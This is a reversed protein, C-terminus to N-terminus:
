SLSQGNAYGLLAPDSQLLSSIGLLWLPDASLLSLESMKSNKPRNRWKEKKEEFSAHLHRKYFTNSEPRKLGFLRMIPSESDNQIRGVNWGKWLKKM